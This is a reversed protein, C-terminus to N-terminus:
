RLRSRNYSLRSLNRILSQVNRDGAGIKGLADSFFDIAIDYDHVDVPKPIGDKGGLAFSFKVPDQFSPPDGCVVEALYSLARITSKGIGNINILEMFSSPSYEYIKRLKKWDVAHDLRLEREAGFFSDITSQGSQRTRGILADPNEGSLELMSKRNGESLRTSLDLSEPRYDNSSIGSRGDNLLDASSAWIWHYRRALGLNQDMGQEVVAWKGSGDVVIFQLYLDYGDQLLNNDTKAINKANRLIGSVRSEGLYGSRALAGGEDAIRGMREGKGGLIRIPGDHKSYYEKLAALTATTTGSSNWDFGIVLSFSHFWFPDSLKELLTHVGYEDAIIECLTGGLEVMRKFLYEPPHGYHLPLISTGRREM